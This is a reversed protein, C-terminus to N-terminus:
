IMGGNSNNYNTCGYKNTCGNRKINVVDGTLDCEGTNGRLSKYNECLNTSLEEFSLKEFTLDIDLKSMLKVKKEVM